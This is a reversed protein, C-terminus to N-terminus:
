KKKEVVEIGSFGLSALRQLEAQATTKDLKASYPYEAVEKATLTEGNALKMILEANLIVGKENRFMLFNNKFKFTKEVKEAGELVKAKFTGQVVRLTSQTQIAALAEKQAAVQAKLAEIQALMETTEKIEAM